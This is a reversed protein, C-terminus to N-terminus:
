GNSGNELREILLENLKLLTKCIESTNDKAKNEFNVIDSLEREINRNISEQKSFGNSYRKRLKKINLRKIDDEAISLEDQLIVLYWYIDGLEEAMNVRDIIIRNGKDLISNLLSDGLEGVETIIGLISHLLRELGSDLNKPTTDVIKKTMDKGYFIFKKYEDLKAIRTSISSWLEAIDDRVENTYRGETKSTETKLVESRYDFEQM